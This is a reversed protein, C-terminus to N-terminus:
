TICCRRNTNAWRYYLSPVPNPDSLILPYVRHDKFRLAIVLLYMYLEGSNKFHIFQRVWGSKLGRKPFIRRSVFQVSVFQEERLFQIHIGGGNRCILVLLNLSEELSHGARFLRWHNKHLVSEALPAGYEEDAPM